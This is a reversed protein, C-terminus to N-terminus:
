CRARTTSGPAGGFQSRAQRSSTEAVGRVLQGYDGDSLLSELEGYPHAYFLVPEAELAPALLVALAIADEARSSGDVGILVTRTMPARLAAHARAQRGDISAHDLLGALIAGSVLALMGAPHVIPVFRSRGDKLEIYGAPAVTGGAGAGEGVQDKARDRGAGGGFGFRAVAVPVVTVGEREVPAGFVMSATFRAGLRDILTLM